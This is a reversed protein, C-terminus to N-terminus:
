ITEESNGENTGFSRVHVSLFANPSSRPSPRGGKWSKLERITSKRKGWSKRKHDHSQQFFWNGQQTTCIEFQIGFFVTNMVVPTWGDNQKVGAVPATM